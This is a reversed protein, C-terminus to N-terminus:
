KPIPEGTFPSIRPPPEPASDLQRVGSISEISDVVLVTDQPPAKEDTLEFVLAKPIPSMMWSGGETICAGNSYLMRSPSSSLEFVLGPLENTSRIESLARGPDYSAAQRLRAWLRPLDSFSEDVAVDFVLSSYKFIAQVWEGNFRFSRYFRDDSSFRVGELLVSTNFLGQVREPAEDLLYAERANEFFAFALEDVFFDATFSSEATWVCGDNDAVWIRCEVADVPFDYTKAPLRTL